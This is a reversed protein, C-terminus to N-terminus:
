VGTVEVKKYLRAYCPKIKKDGGSLRVEVSTFYSDKSIYENV